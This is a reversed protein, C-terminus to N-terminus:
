RQIKLVGLSIFERARQM